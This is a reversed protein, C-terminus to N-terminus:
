SMENLISFARTADASPSRWCSGRSRRRVSRRRASRARSGDPRRIAARSRRRLVEANGLIATLLNNFDHAIGGALRGISEMKQAQFLQDQLARREGIDQVLVLAFSAEDNEDRVITVTM